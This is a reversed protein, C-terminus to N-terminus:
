AKDPANTALWDFTSNCLAVFLLSTEGITIEDRDAMETPMLVLNGKHRVLNSKGNDRIFFMRQAEDYIIFAHAERSIGQDGFDICIRQDPGRGIANQGYFVPRFQGRGPGSTVVLWGVVPDFKPGAPSVFITEDQGTRYSVTADTDASHRGAVRVQRQIDALTGRQDGGATSRNPLIRTDEDRDDRSGGPYTM